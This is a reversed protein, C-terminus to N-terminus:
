EIVIFAAQKSAQRYQPSPELEVDRLSHGTAPGQRRLSDSPQQGAQDVLGHDLDLSACRDAIRQQLGDALEGGGPQGLVALLGPRV